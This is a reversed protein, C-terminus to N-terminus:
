PHSPREQREAEMSRVFRAILFLVGAFLLLCPIALLLEIPRVVGSLLHNLTHWLFAALPTGLLVLGLISAALRGTGPGANTTM